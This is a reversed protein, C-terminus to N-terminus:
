NAPGNSNARVGRQRERDRNPQRAETTPMASVVMGEPPTGVTMMCGLGIGAGCGTRLQLLATLVGDNVVVSRIVLSGDVYGIDYNSLGTGTADSLLDVYRGAAAGTARGLVTTVTDTGYLTGVTFGNTHVSGDFTATTTNGRITLAARDVMLTGPVFTIDYNGSTLGGATIAYSGANVAGQASGGYALAGSLVADTEGDVLGTFTVGNGGSFALGDYTKGANRAM